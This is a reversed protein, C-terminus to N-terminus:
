FVYINVELYPILKQMIRSVFHTKKLKPEYEKADSNNKGLKLILDKFSECMACEVFVLGRKQVDVNFHHKNRLRNMVSQFIGEIKLESIHLFTIFFILVIFRM